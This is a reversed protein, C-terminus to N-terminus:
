QRVMRQMLPLDARDAPSLEGLPDQELRRRLSPHEHGARPRGRDIWARVNAHDPLDVVLHLRPPGDNCAGHVVSNNLLWASGPRLHLFRGEVCLLAAPNTVLPVHVRHHEDWHATNDVHAHITSGRPSLGLWALVPPVPFTDDLFRQLQPQARLFASDHGVGTVLESGPGDGQPGGRLVCFYTGRHWKWQSAVWSPRAGAPAGALAGVLDNVNTVPDLPLQVFRYPKAIAKPSRVHPRQHSRM